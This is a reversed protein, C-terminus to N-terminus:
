QATVARHGRGRVGSLDGGVVPIPDRHGGHVRAGAVGSDGLSM